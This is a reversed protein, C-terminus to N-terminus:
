FPINPETNYNNVINYLLNYLASININQLRLMINKQKLHLILYDTTASISRIKIYPVINTKKNWRFNTTTIDISKKNCMITANKKLSMCWLTRIIYGKFTISTITRCIPCNIQINNWSDICDSHFIHGCSLTRSTVKTIEELCIVCEDKYNEVETLLPKSENEDNHTQNIFSQKIPKM